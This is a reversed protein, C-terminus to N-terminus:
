IQCLIPRRALCFLYILQALLYYQMYEATHVWKILEVFKVWDFEFWHSNNASHYIVRKIVCEEDM